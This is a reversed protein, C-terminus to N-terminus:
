RAPHLFWPLTHDKMALININTGSCGYAQMATSLPLSMLVVYLLDERLPITWETGVQPRTSTQSWGM